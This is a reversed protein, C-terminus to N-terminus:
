RRGSLLNEQQQQEAYAGDAFGIRHEQSSGGGASIGGCLAFNLASPVM